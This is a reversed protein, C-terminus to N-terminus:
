LNSYGEIIFLLHAFGGCVPLCCVRLSIKCLGCWPSPQVRECHRGNTQQRDRAQSALSLSLSTYNSPPLTLSFCLFSCSPLTLSLSLFLFCFFLISLSISIYFSFFISLPLSLFHSNSLSYAFFFFLSHYVGKRDEFVFLCLFRVCGSVCVSVWVFVCVWVCVCGCVCLYLHLIWHMTRLSRSLGSHEKHKHTFM